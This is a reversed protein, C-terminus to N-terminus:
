SGSAGAMRVEVAHIVSHLVKIHVEQVRDATRAEPVVVALDVLGALKGGGRGLLGITEIGLQRAREAARVLNQSDGSTSILLLLDGPRAHGELARAFVEEYGYDNAIGSILGADSFAMAPLPMRDDRFRGTWEQAFHMADCMSGGNGCAFLRHGSALVAHAREAFRAVAARASADGRLAELARAAEDLSADIADIPDM